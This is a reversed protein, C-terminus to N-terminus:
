CTSFNTAVHHKIAVKSMESTVNELVAVDMYDKSVNIIRYKKFFFLSFAVSVVAVICIRM